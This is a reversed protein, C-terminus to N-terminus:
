YLSKSITNSESNGLIFFLFVNFAILCLIVGLIRHKWLKSGIFM